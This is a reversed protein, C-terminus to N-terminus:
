NWISEKNQNKNNKVYLGGINIQGNKSVTTILEYKKRLQEAREQCDCKEGPDLNDGCSSCTNYYAM